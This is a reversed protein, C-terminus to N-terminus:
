DICYLLRDVKLTQKTGFVFAENPLDVRSHTILTATRGNSFVLTTSSSEDVGDYNLQGGTVVKVPKEGFVFEAFQVCYVGLDLITGGGLEKLRSISLSTKAM